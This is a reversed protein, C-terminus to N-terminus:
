VPLDIYIGMGKDIGSKAFVKGGHSEVSMKVTHLGLGFGSSKNSGQYNREFIRGVEHSDMGKGDDKFVILLRNDAQSVTINIEGDRGMYKVSNELINYFIRTLKTEDAKIVISNGENDSNVKIVIQSQSREVIRSVDNATQRILAMIDVPAASIQEIGSSFRANSLLEDFLNLMYSVRECIKLLYEKRVEEEHILDGNLLNAYGSIISLPTRMEHAIAGHFRVLSEESEKQIKDCEECKRQLESRAKDLEAALERERKTTITFKM